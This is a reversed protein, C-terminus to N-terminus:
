VGAPSPSQPRPSRRSQYLTPTALHNLLALDEPALPRSRDAVAVAGLVDDAAAIPAYAFAWSDAADGQPILGALKATAARGSGTLPAGPVRVRRGLLGPTGLCATVRGAGTGDPSLVVAVREVGFVEHIDVALRGLPLHGPLTEVRAARRRQRDMQEDARKAVVVLSLAFAAIGIWVGVILLIIM